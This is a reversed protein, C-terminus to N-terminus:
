GPSDYGDTQVVGVEAEASGAIDAEAEGLGGVYEEDVGIADRLGAANLSQEFHQSCCGSMPM